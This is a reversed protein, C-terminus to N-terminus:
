KKRCGRRPDLDARLCEVSLSARRFRRGDWRLRENRVGGYCHASGPQVPCPGYPTRVLLDGGHVDIGTECWSGRFIERVGGSVAASVSREGCGGSGESQTLLVDDLADHTVDGARLGYHAWGPLRKSYVRRWGRKTRLWVIVGQQRSVTNRDPVFTGKGEDIPHGAPTRVARLWLVALLKLAGHRRLEVVDAEAREPVLLEDQPREASRILRALPRPQRRTLLFREGPQYLVPGELRCASAAACHAFLQEGQHVRLYRGNFHGVFVSGAYVRVAARNRASRVAFSAPASLPCEPCQTGMPVIQLPLTTPAFGGAHEDARTVVVSRGGFARGRGNPDYDGVSTTGRRLIAHYGNCEPAGVVVRGRTVHIEHPAVRGELLRKGRADAEGDV